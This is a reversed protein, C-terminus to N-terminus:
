MAEKIKLTLTFKSKPKLLFTKKMVRINTKILKTNIKGKYIEIIAKVIIETIIIFFM